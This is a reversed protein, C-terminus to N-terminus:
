VSNNSISNKIHIFISKANFLRCLNIHWLVLGFRSKRIIQLLRKENFYLKRLIFNLHETNGNLKNQNGLDIYSFINISHSYWVSNALSLICLIDKASLFSEMGFLPTRLIVSFQMQYHPELEPPRLLTYYGKMPMFGLNVRVQLPLIQKPEM